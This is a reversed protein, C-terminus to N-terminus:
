QEGGDNQQDPRCLDAGVATVCDSKFAIGNVELPKYFAPTSFTYEPKFRISHLGRQM